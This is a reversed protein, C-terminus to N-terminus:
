LLAEWTLPEGRRLAKQAKRGIVREWDQPPLGHGPRIIRVNEPTIEGGAPIDQVVFISRRFVRSAKEKETLEYSVRGLAQEATRVNDVMAKFEAPEMSFASDPGPVARSQTFHKEIICGGLCVSAVAVASGMTHDSLGAPVGFADALHPITRLNAEEPPAPYASTCKLLALERCGAERATEVAIAIEELSGMGTSMILPKGTQAVRRILPLHVLEFSAIKYAPADQKELLEVATEDFPTSFLTIGVKRAHTFLEAHWQWPTFAEGYLQYLNKGEWITGEGIQFYGNNCDLTMTDPTYTQIKVADAGCEKALSILKLASELSQNHNASIEAIVYAPQSFDIRRGDITICPFEM